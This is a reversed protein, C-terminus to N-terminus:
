WSSRLVTAVMSPITARSIRSERPFGVTSTSIPRSSPVIARAATGDPAEVPANSASSSRSPSALGSRRCPRRLLGDGVDLVPDDVPASRTRPSRAARSRGSSARGRRCGPCTRAEAGVRDEADRQGHGLGGRSPALQAQEAVQAPGVRVQQRHRHHVDEVAAGVGVGVDVDLLEHDRRDPRRREALRQAGAGLDVVRELRTSFFFPRDVPRPSSPPKAGFRGALAAASSRIASATCAAPYVSPLRCRARARRPRSRTRRPRRRCRRPRRALRGVVHDGVVRLSTSAYGITDMSSGSASSSQAPQFASM